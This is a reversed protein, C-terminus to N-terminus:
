KKPPAAFAGFFDVVELVALLLANKANALEDPDLTSFWCTLEVPMAFENLGSYNVSVMDQIVLPQEKMRTQALDLFTNLLPLRNWGEFLRPGSFLDIEVRRLELAADDRASAEARTEVAHDPRNDQTEMMIVSHSRDITKGVTVFAERIMVAVYRDLQSRSYHVTNM